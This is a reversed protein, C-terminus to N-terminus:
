FKRAVLVLDLIDTTGDGNIDGDTTDFHESVFILDLVNVIGDRNLDFPKGVRLYIEGDLDPLLHTIDKKNSSVGLSVRPLTIPQEKGTRNYVAWGNTFERIYLGEIDQYPEGIAGIPRGLDADWFNHWIHRHFNDTNYLVYGDSCTLSMTTFLRMWRRNNPSDPPETTIGWGELCNVQPSRLNEENWILSYEIEKIGELTYGTDNDRGTEMFAGNIAWATRPIKRRNTNGIILFNDRVQARIQRLINDRARQEAELGRYGESWGVTANALIANNETWYDIIIGDFLGCEAIAMAQQVIIDQMEPLTFDIYFWEGNPTSIPNGEEDRLWCPFDEPYYGIWASHMRVEALFIMNQNLHLHADREAQAQNLNGRASWGENTELFGNLFPMGHWYLDHLAVSEINSLDARNEVSVRWPSFLSPYTRNNIREQVPLHPLQCIEDAAFTNTTILMWFIFRIAYNRKM